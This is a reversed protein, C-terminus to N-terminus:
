PYFMYLRYGAQATASADIFVKLAVEANPAIGRQIDATGSAYDAPALARRVVVRDQADTLTLELYPYAVPWSARNRVTATMILLGRHATDAQLDSAEISLHSMAPDRLPRIACGAVDCLKTLVPRAAPWHAVISDRFHYLAQAALASLLALMALAYAFARLGTAAAPRPGALREELTTAPAADANPIAGDTAPAVSSAEAEAGHLEDAKDAGPVDTSDGPAAEGAATSEGVAAAEGAPEADHLEQASTGSAGPEATQVGGPIDMTPSAGDDRAESNEPDEPDYPPAHVIQQAVGDFITRCQGCRVQGGRISLQEGTVRYVTACGPCRTFKDDAM